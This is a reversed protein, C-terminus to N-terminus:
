RKMIRNPEAISGVNKFMFMIGYLVLFRRDVKKIIAKEEENSFTALFATRAEPNGRIDMTLDEYDFSSIALAPEKGIEPDEGHRSVHSISEILGTKSRFSKDIAHHHPPM